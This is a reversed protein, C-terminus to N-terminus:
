AASRKVEFDFWSGKRGAPTEIIVQARWPMSEETCIGIQGEGRFIGNGLAELPFRNIGMSMNRGVLEVTVADAHVGSLRVEMPLIALPSLEGELSLSLRAQLGLAAECPAQHLDCSSSPPFWTVEQSSGRLYYDALYWLAVVMTALTVLILLNLLPSRPAGEEKSPLSTSM